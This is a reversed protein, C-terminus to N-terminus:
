ISQPRLKLFSIPVHVLSYLFHKSGSGTTFEEHVLKPFCFSGISFNREMKTPNSAINVGGRWALTPREGNRWTGGILDEDKGRGQRSRSTNSRDQEIAV